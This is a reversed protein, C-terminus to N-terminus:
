QWMGARKGGVTTTIGAVQVQGTLGENIAQAYSVQAGAPMSMVTPNYKWRGHQDWSVAIFQGSGGARPDAAYGVITRADNIDTAVGGSGAALVALEIVDTYVGKKGPVPAPWVVARTTTNPMVIYGVIDGLRNVGLANAERAGKPMPLARMGGAATWSFALATGAPTDATGVVQGLDSIAQAMSESGGLTGLDQMGGSPTYLVARPTGTPTTRSYGVVYGLNNNGLAVSYSGGPLVGLERMTGSEWVVARAQNASNIAVGAIQGGNNISFAYTNGWGAGTPVLPTMGDAPSWTFASIAGDPVSSFGVVAGLDNIGYAASETMNPILGLDTFSGGIALTGFRGLSPRAATPGLADSCAALATCALLPLVAVRRM